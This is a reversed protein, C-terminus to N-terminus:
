FTGWGWPSNQTNGGINYFVGRFDATNDIPSGTFPNDILFGLATLSNYTEGSTSTNLRFTSDGMGAYQFTLGDPSPNPPLVQGSPYSRDALRQANRRRTASAFPGAIDPAQISNLRSKFVPEANDYYAGPNNLAAAEFSNNSTFTLDMRALPDGQYSNGTITFTTQNWTGQTTGPDVTSTFSGFYIDDGFNGGLSNGTVSAVIGGNGLSAFGGPSNFGYNGGTTGVRFVIGTASFDSNQGNGVVLTNDITIDLFANNILAGDANMGDFTGAGEPNNPDAARPTPGNQTQTTSATNVVYIGEGGNANIINGGNNGNGVNTGSAIVITSFAQGQNLIDIGRGANFDITNGLVTLNMTGLASGNNFEIGDGVENGPNTGFGNGTIHNAVVRVDKFTVGGIDIGHLFNDEIQNNAISVITAGVIDIGDVHNGAILNALTTDTESGINLNDTHSTLQIGNGINNTILNRTWDGSVTRADSAANVQETTLIGNAQNGDILNNDIDANLLADAQVDLQIGDGGNDLIDNTSIVYRDQLLANRSSLNIGDITNQQIVNNQITVPTVNGIRGNATRLFEIGHVNNGQILNGLDSTAGGILFSQVQSFTGLNNGTTTVRIGSGANDLIQSAQVTGNLISSGRLVASIGEGNFLSGVTNSSTTNSVVTNLVTLTGNSTGTQLAGIGVDINGSVTSTPGTLSGVTLNYTSAGSADVFIGNGTNGSVTTDTMTSTYTANNNLDVIVGGTGNGNVTDGDSNFTLDATNSVALNVGNLTNQSYINDQSQLLMVNNADLSVNLGNGGNTSINNALLDIGIPSGGADPNIIRIGDGAVQNTITNNSILSPGPAAPAPLTSASVLFEIGNTGNADILNSDILMSAIDSGNSTNVLIGDLTNGSIGQTGATAAADNGSINLVGLPANNLAVNVGNGNVNGFIESNTINISGVGPGGINALNVQVGDGNQNQNVQNGDLSIEDIGGSVGTATVLIGGLGNTNVTNGQMFIQNETTVNTLDYQIGNGANNTVISNLIPININSGAGAASLDIGSGTGSTAGNSDFTNGITSGATPDGIIMNIVSGSAARAVLGDDGNSNFANGIIPDVVTVTSGVSAFIDLGDDTNGNFENQNAASGDGIGALSITGTTARINLGDIANNNFQNNLMPDLLTITGSTNANLIAGSGTGGTMVNNNFTNLQVLSGAGTAIAQFGASNARTSGTITNDEVALGMQGGASATAVIGAGSNTITNRLVGLEFDEGAPHVTGTPTTATGSAIMATGAGTSNLVIGAATGGNSFNTIVNDNVGLNLTGATHNVRIAQQSVGPTGTFTNDIISGIGALAFGNAGITTNSDISIGNVVNQLTNGHIYFGNTTTLTDIGNATNGADITFGYVENSNGAITVVNTGPAGSNSITPRSGDPAGDDRTPLNTPTFVNGFWADISYPTGAVDGILRQGTYSGAPGNVLTIGTNLNADSTPDTNRRVYVIQYRNPDADAAYETTSAYPNEITGDGGPAATPDIYVITITVGNPDEALINASTSSKGTPVRYRRQVSQTMYTQVPARRFFRRPAGSPVTWEFNLSFLSKFIHDYTYIGNMWFNETIQAQTRVSAGTASGITSNNLVYAGLGLDFGYRGLVPMPVAVEWDYSQLAQEFFTTRIVAINNGLFNPTGDSFGTSTSTGGVPVSFNGRLSYYQGINEFSGGLQNYSRRHGNDYDWWFSGGYVRDRSPSYFRQGVGLNAAAMGYDTVNIRPNVWLLSTDVSGTIPVFANFNQYGGSYGYQDLNVRGFRWLIQNVNNMSAYGLGDDNPVMAGEFAPATPGLVREPELGSPGQPPPVFTAQAQTVSASASHGMRVSATEDSIVLKAEDSIVLRAEDEAPDDEPFIIPEPWAPTSLGLCIAVMALWRKSAHKM